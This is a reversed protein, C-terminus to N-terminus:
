VGAAATIINRLTLASGAAKGRIRVVLSNDIFASSFVAFSRDRDSSSRYVALGSMEAREGLGIRSRVGADTSRHM